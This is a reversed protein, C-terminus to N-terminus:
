RGTSIPTSARPVGGRPQLSVADSRYIQNPSFLFGPEGDKMVFKTPKFVPLTLDSNPDYAAKSTYSGYVYYERNNDFGHAPIAEAEPLRDPVQVSWEDMIVLQADEWSQRPKRLYGWFRTDPVHYRRGIYYDGLPEVAIQADRKAIAAAVAPDMTVCSNLGAAVLM